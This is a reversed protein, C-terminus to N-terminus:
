PRKRRATVRSLPGGPFRADVRSGLAVVGRRLSAALPQHDSVAPAGAAAPATSARLSRVVELHSHWWRRHEYWRRWALRLRGALVEPDDLVLSRRLVYGFEFGDEGEDEALVADVLEWRQGLAAVAHVLVEFFEQDDWCHVHISRRRHLDFMASREAPDDPIAVGTGVLFDAVHDDAVSDVERAHEDLLHALSTPRRGHDFTRHRDPLLVLLTGGPRLVRHIDDLLALPNAVHELVHSAIVFDQSADDVAGLRDTDLNSVIDPEPFPAEDGLERFLARNEAPQWRDVFRVGAGPYPVPFPAHGPGLELGSGVLHRALLGREADRSGPVPDAM